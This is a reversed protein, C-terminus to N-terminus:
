TQLGGQCPTGEGQKVYILRWRRARARREKVADCSEKWGCGNMGDVM